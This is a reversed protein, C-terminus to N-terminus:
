RDSTHVITLLLFAHIFTTHSHHYFVPKRIVPVNQRYLKQQMIHIKESSQIKAYKKIQSFTIKPSLIGTKEHGTRSVRFKLIRM